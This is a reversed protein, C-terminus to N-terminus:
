KLGIGVKQAPPDSGLKAADQQLAKSVDAKAKLKGEQTKKQRKKKKERPDSIM